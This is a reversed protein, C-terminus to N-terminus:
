VSPEAASPWFRLTPGWCQTVRTSIDTVAELRSSRSTAELDSGKQTRKWSTSPFQISTCYSGSPWVRCSRHFCQLPFVSSLKLINTLGMNTSRWVTIAAGPLHLSVIFPICFYFSPPSPHFIKIIRLLARLTVDVVGAGRPFAVLLSQKYDVISQLFSGIPKLGSGSDHHRSWRADPAAHQAWYSIALNILMMEIYSPYQLGPRHCLFWIPPQFHVDSM